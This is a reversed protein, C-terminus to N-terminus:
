GAKLSCDTTSAAWFDGDVKGSNLYIFLMNIVWFSTSRTWSEFMCDIFFMVFILSMHFKLKRNNNRLISKVCKIFTMAFPIFLLIGGDLLVQLFTNHTSRM